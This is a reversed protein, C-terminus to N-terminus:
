KYLHLYMTHLLERRYSTKGRGIENNIWSNPFQKKYIEVFEDEAQRDKNQVKKYLQFIYEKDM